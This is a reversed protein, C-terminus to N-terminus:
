GDIVSREGYDDGFDSRVLMRVINSDRPTANSLEALRTAVCAM